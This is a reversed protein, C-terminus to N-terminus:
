KLYSWLIDERAVIGVLDAKTIRSPEKKIHVPHEVVPL